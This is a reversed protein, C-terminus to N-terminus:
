DTGHGDLSFNRIVPITRIIAAVRKTKTIGKEILQSAIGVDTADNKKEIHDMREIRLGSIFIKGVISSRM